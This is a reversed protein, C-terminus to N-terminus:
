TEFVANSELIHRIVPVSVGERVAVDTLAVIDRALHGGGFPSGPRLPAQPSVRPETLLARSITDANAGVADAVRAIENIFAIQLGLFANLAHKCMEATEPDTWIVRMTFARLVEDVVDIHTRAGVIIRNASLFDDLGSAVRINEPSYAWQHTPYLAELGALTGVPMPSSLLVPVTAALLLHAKLNRLVSAYDAVGDHFPVEDCAWILDVEDRAHKTVEFGKLVCGALTVNALNGDGLVAIKM